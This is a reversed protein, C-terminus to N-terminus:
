LAGKLKVITDGRSKLALEQLQRVTEPITVTKDEWFRSVISRIAARTESPLAMDVAVSPLLNGTKSTTQFDTIATLACADFGDKSVGSRVPISGKRINFDHQFQEGLLVYSLYGQARQAEFNKLQFMAFTDVVFTFSAETGPSKECFFDKGATLGASTFEGKAWDGMIQFGSKGAIVRETAQNWTMKAASSDTYDKLRRFITLTQEMKPDSLSESELRMLAKQYFQPGGVGLIINEFLVFEQWADYGIALPIVGISRIRDAAAFFDPFNKPMTEIGARKLVAANAWLWNTRHVNVPVAVYHGKYKVLNQVAPPLLQDWHNFEALTDLHALAGRQAWEQSELAIMAVASPPSGAAVRSRLAQMANGGGGGVVAFDKWTHGREAILRKVQDISQSESPSTWYHLVEVEGASAPHVGSLVFVLTFLGTKILFYPL